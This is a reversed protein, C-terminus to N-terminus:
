PLGERRPGVPPAPASLMIVEIEETIEEQRLRNSQRALEALSEELHSVAGDLHELRIQNEALLSTYLVQNLSAFLYQDTLESLFTAPELNLQPPHNFAPPTAPLAQFPPLLRESLVQDSGAERYLATLTLSAEGPQASALASVIQSLVSEVEEAVNAGEIFAAVRPDAELRSHLRSGVVIVSPGEGRSEQLTSDLERVLSENFDGCFGRETGVVLHLHAVAGPQSDPYPFFSLFDAGVRELTNVVERQADLFRTLKRTEIYALTKMSNMIERIEDLMHRHSDVDRRRSM